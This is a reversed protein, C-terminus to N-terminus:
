SVRIRKSFRWFWNGHIKKYQLQGNTRSVYTWGARKMVDRDNSIRAGLSTPNEFPNRISQNKCYRNFLTYLDSAKIIFELRQVRETFQDSEESLEEIEETLYFTELYEPDDYIKVEVGDKHADEVFFGPYPSEFEKHQQYQLDSGRGKIKIRIERELGDMLNLLTNSTIATSHEQEDQYSVWRDLLDMAQTKVPTEKKWPMYELLAELIVMMTCIHENNRDKSHGPHKTQLYKSWDVRDKLNPLVRKCLMNFIASLMVNRKKLITRMVEDHLYGHQKYSSELMLPFTRNVLEPIKGPFAEISTIIAMADLKQYLVETDSGAKAKPKHSSNALLLLFDVTGQSLNRNELNDLIVLPNNTAVRTEAAGTGKGVYSEGYILQSIREAVKSKGIKSSAIVQLLGRDGQFNMMFVSITWCILFYRQPAECPTTDMLLQKLAAFGEAESTNATYEFHRIQPSKSLLISHENTGNDILCPEENAALRMIKNHSSNMNLYIADRERDTHQWSMIDVLEGHMNCMNQLYYWVTSGPKDCAALRTLKLMLTNFDLNNGIEFSRRQYFLWVKGDGTKYFRGGAGNGFWKYIYAALDYPDAKKMDGRYKDSLSTYLDVANNVLEEVAKVSIGIHKAAEEIAIEQDATSTIANIAQALKRLKFAELRDKTEPILGLQELEWQLPTRAELKLERIISRMEGVSKRGRVLEQVYADPDKASGPHVIIKVTVGSDALREYLFRIHSPGGHGNVRDTRFARQTDQDFWLYVTTKGSCFNKILVIQDQSPGGATGCVLDIGIDTLSAIDNEGEVIFCESSKGLMAYNLLWKKGQGKLMTRKLKKEPDKVTFAIVRGEHNLVPFVAYGAKWYDQLPIEKGESNQNRALGYQVVEEASFGQEQLYALLKGTTAGVQLKQLTAESHNRKTLFYERAANGEEAIAARYHEHALRFMREQDSEAKQKKEKAAAPSSGDARQELRVGAIDAARKLADFKELKHYEELFTFVDGTKECQFCKYAEDKISFCQHGTCFPCESLHAGKMVLGTEQTIVSLLDLREKINAYDTM